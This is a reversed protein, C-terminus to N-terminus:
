YSCTCAGPPIYPPTFGSITGGRGGLVFVLASLLFPLIDTRRRSPRIITDAPPPPADVVSYRAPLTPADKPVIADPVNVAVTQISPVKPVEAVVPLARRVLSLNGCRAPIFVALIADPEHLDAEWGRTNAPITVDHIVYVRGADSWTMADLHQPVTVWALENSEIRDSLQAYEAKTLGLEAGAAKFLTQRVAIHQRLDPTSASDGLLPFTGLESIVVAKADVARVNLLVCACLSLLALAFGRMVADADRHLRGVPM